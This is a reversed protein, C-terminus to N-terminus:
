VICDTSDSLMSVPYMCSENGYINATCFSSRAKDGVAMCTYEGADELRVNTIIIINYCAFVRNVYNCQVIRNDRMWVTEGKRAPLGDVYCQFRVQDIGDRIVM